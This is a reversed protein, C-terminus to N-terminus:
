AAKKRAPQTAPRSAPKSAAPEKPAPPEPEAPKPVQAPMATLTVTVERYKGDRRFRVRIKDGVKHSKVVQHLHTHDVIRTDDINVIVDDAKLGARDAGSGPVVATVLVGDVAPRLQIGIYAEKPRLRYTPAKQRLVWKKWDSEIEALPKGLAAEMAKAGTKDDDFGATYLDYWTKLLHKEYLYVMMYRCQSYGIAAARMFRGHDLKVFDKFAISRNRKVIQQLLNLRPNDRPLAHGDVVESSEFLTALGETVWIPHTQGHGNMDAGHLAHTFEHILTMGVTRAYLTHAGRNYFGGIARGWRWESAKPIVITLYREFGHTFLDQSQAVAYETLRQRMDQLIQEDINTAFVLKSEHDIGYLYGEGFRERLRAYIKEARQRQLEDKRAVIAKYGAMERIVDLDSDREMHRFATYGHEVSRNLCDIAKDKDGLRSHVCALNYWAINNGPDIKLIGELLPHCEAYKKEKFLRFLERNIQAIRRAVATRERQDQTSAGRMRELLKKFGDLPRLSKLDEDAQAHEADRYGNAVANALSELAQDKRGLLAEMCALNYWATSDKPSLGVIERLVAAAEAYKRQRYLAAVQENLRQIQAPDPAPQSAPATAPSLDGIGNCRSLDGIGNCRSQLRSQLRPKDPQSQPAPRGLSVGALAAALWIALTRRM